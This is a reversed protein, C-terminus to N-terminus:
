TESQPAMLATVKQKWWPQAPSPPAEAASTPVRRETEALVTAAFLRAKEIDTLERKEEKVLAKNEEKKSPSVQETVEKKSASSRLKGDGRPSGPESRRKESEHALKKSGGQSPSGVPLPPIRKRTPSQPPASVALEDSLALLIREVSKPSSWRSPSATPTTPPGKEKTKPSSALKQRSSGVPSAATSGGLTASLTAPKAKTPAQSQEWHDSPRFPANRLLTEGARRNPSQPPNHSDVTIAPAKEDAHAGDMVCDAAAEAPTSVIPDSASSTVNEETAAAPALGEDNRPHCAGGADRVPRAESLETVELVMARKEQNEETGRSTDDRIEALPSARDGSEEDADADAGSDNTAGPQMKTSNMDTSKADHSESVISSADSAELTAPQTDTAVNSVVEVVQEKADV